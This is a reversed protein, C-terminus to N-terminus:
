QRRPQLRPHDRRLLDFRRRFRDEAHQQEVRGGDFRHRLPGAEEPDIWIPQGVQVPRRSRPDSSDLSAQRLVTPNRRDDDPPLPVVGEHDRAGTGSGVHQRVAFGLSTERVRSGQRMEIQGGRQAIRQALEVDARDSLKSVQREFSQAHAPPRGGALQVFEDRPAGPLREVRLERRHRRLGGNRDLRGVIVVVTQEEPQLTREVCKGGFSFLATFPDDGRLQREPQIVGGGM